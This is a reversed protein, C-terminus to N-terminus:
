IPNICQTDTPKTFQLTSTVTTQKSWERVSINQYLSTPQFIHNPPVMWMRTIPAPERANIYSCLHKVLLILLRKKSNNNIWCSSNRSSFNLNTGKSCIRFSILRWIVGDWLVLGNRQVLDFVKSYMALLDGRQCSCM